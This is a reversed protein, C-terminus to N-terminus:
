LCSAKTVPVFIDIAKNIEQSFANWLSDASLNTTLMSLWDVDQLYESMGDFDAKKWCRQDTTDPKAAQNDVVLIDFMVQCHDSNCFPNEVRVSSIILPENTLV